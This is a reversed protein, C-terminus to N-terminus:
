SPATPTARSRRASRQGDAPDPRGDADRQRGGDTGPEPQRHHGRDTSDTAGNDDTVTLTATYSGAAAYTHSPNALTSTGGDGFTWLRSAITGDPDSSCRRAHLRRHAAGQRQHAHRERRRDPAQNANVTINVTDSNM